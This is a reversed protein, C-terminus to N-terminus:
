CRYVPLIKGPLRPNRIVLIPWTDSYHFDLNVAIGLAKARQISKEVDAYGSYLHTQESGYLTKVWVPNHWLRLRVMNSGHEKMIRFPDRIISSDRYIGGHDEIENVYSLDVGMAFEDSTFFRYKPTPVPNEEAPNDKCSFCVFLLLVLISQIKM